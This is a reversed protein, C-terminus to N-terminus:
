HTHLWLEKAKLNGGLLYGKNEDFVFFEPVAEKIRGKLRQRTFVMCANRGLLAKKLRQIHKVKFRKISHNSYFIMSPKWLGYSVLEVSSASKQVQSEVIKGVKLAMEKAPGQFTRALFPLFFLVILGSFAVSWLLRAFAGCRTFGYLLVVTAVLIVAGWFSISSPPSDPFAYETSDFRIIDELHAWIFDLGFIIFLSLIIFISALFYMLFKETGQLGEDGKALHNGIMMAVFPIAPIIYNIQKTAAVTLLIFIWSFIMFSFLFLRARSSQEKASPGNKFMSFGDGLAKPLFVSMPFLGLALVVVYFIPGGGHGLLTTAFRELNQTLFFTEFFAPGVRSHIAWFWPLCVALFISMATFVYRPALWSFDRRIASYALIVPLFMAVGVPGKTLFALSVFLWSMCWYRLSLARESWIFFVMFALWLFLTLLLDTLCARAVVLFLPSGVLFLASYISVDEGLSLRPLLYLMGMVLLFAALASPLRAAFENEGLAKFSLALTWFFLIPKELYPRQNLHPVIYDGSRTMEQASSAYEGEDRDTLPFAGLAWFLQFMALFVVLIRKAKFPVDTVSLLSM